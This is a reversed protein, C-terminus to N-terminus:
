GKKHILTNIEKLLKTALSKVANNLELSLDTGASTNKPQVGFIFLEDPQENLDKSLHVVKLIDPEHTSINVLIKNSQVDELTFLRSEGPKGGFDVADILIVLDFRALLHLINMGGTGGDIFEVDQLLENKREILKELLVIGIGDDQRLPSGIGIIAKRIM